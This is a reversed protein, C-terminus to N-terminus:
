IMMMLLMTVVRKMLTVTVSERIVGIMVEERRKMVITFVRNLGINRMMVVMVILILSVFTMM